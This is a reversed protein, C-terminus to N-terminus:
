KKRYVYAGSEPFETHPYGYVTIIKKELNDHNNDKQHPYKFYAEYIIGNDNLKKLSQSLIYDKYLKQWELVNSLYIVDYKESTDLLYDKIDSDYYTIPVKSLNLKLNEYNMKFKVPLGDERFLRKNKKFIRSNIIENWFVFANEDMFPKIDNLNIKTTLIRRIKCFHNFFDDEDYALILAKKLELYYKCLPNIDVCDIKKAGSNIAYLAHDGSGTICLVDKDKSNYYKYYKNIKENSWPYLKFDDVSQPTYLLEFALEIDSQLNKFVDM